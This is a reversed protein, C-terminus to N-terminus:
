AAGGSYVREREQEFKAEVEDAVAYTAQQIALNMAEAWTPVTMSTPTPTAANGYVKLGLLMAAAHFRCEIQYREADRRFWDLYLTPAQAPDMVAGALFALRAARLAKNAQLRDQPFTEVIKEAHRRQAEEREALMQMEAAEAAERAAALKAAAEAAQREAEQRTAIATALPTNINKAM